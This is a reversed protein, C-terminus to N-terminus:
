PRTTAYVVFSGEGNSWQMETGEGPGSAFPRPAYADTAGPGIAKGPASSRYCTTDAAFLVGIWYVGAKLPTSGAKLPTQPMALRVWSPDSGSVTTVPGKAILQTPMNAKNPVGSCFTKNAGAPDTSYIVGIVETGNEPALLRPYIADLVAPAQLCVPAVIEFDRNCTAAGPDGATAKQCPGDSGTM